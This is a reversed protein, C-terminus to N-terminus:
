PNTKQGTAPTPAPAAANPLSREVHYAAAWAGLKTANGKYFNLMLANLQKAVAHGQRILAPINATSGSRKQAGEAQDPTNEYDDAQARLLDAYNAEHGLEEFADPTKAIADAFSRATSALVHSNNGHPLKFSDMLSPNNTATAISDASRHAGRMEELLAAGKTEKTTTGGHFDATGEVQDAATATLATNVTGMQAFLAKANTTAKTAPTINFDAANTVGFVAMRGFADWQNKDKAEM